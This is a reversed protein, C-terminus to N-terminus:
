PVMDTYQGPQNVMITGGWMCQLVSINDLAPIGGILVNPAGAAWPTITGPICPMPTLVGLAAATAAATAPYAPSICPGFPMINVLPVHDAITAAPTPALTRNIPLVSLVSPAM